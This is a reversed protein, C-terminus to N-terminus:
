APGKLSARMTATGTTATGTCVIRCWRWGIGTFNWMTSGDATIPTSTGAVDVWSALGSVNQPGTGVDRGVDICAQVKMALSAAGTLGAVTACLTAHTAYDVKIPDSTFGATLPVGVGNASDNLGVHHNNSRM